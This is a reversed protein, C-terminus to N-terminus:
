VRRFEYARDEADMTNYIFVKNKKTMVNMSIMFQQCYDDMISNVGFLYKVKTRKMECKNNKCVMLKKGSKKWKYMPGGSDGYCMTPRIYPLEKHEQTKSYNKEFESAEVDAMRWVGRSAIWDSPLKVNRGGNQIDLLNDLLINRPYKTTVQFKLEKTLEKKLEKHPIQQALGSRVLRKKNRKQPRAQTHGFTRGYGSGHFLQWRDRKTKKGRNKRRKRKEKKAKKEESSDKKGGSKRKLNKKKRIANKRKKKKLGLRQKQNLRFSHKMMDMKTKFFGIDVTLVAIDSTLWETAGNIGSAFKPATVVYEPHQVSKISNQSPKLDIYRQVCDDDEGWLKDSNEGCNTFNRDGYGKNLDVTISRPNNDVCHAATLITKNGILSGTCTNKQREYQVELYVIGLPFKDENTPATYTWSSVKSSFFLYLTTHKLIQQFYRM